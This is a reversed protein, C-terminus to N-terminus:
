RLVVFADLDAEAKTSTSANRIQITHTGVGSWTFLFVMQRPSASSANLNVKSNLAGDIYVSVSGEKPGKPAIWGVASGTFSMTASANKATTSEYGGGFAASSSVPHWEGSYSIANSTEQFADVNYTPGYVWGSWNGATNEGTVRFQYRHGPALQIDASTAPQRAVIAYAGGDTSAQLEYDDVFTISDSGSWSVRVPVTSTGAAAPAITATPATVSPGSSQTMAALVNATTRQIRSDIYGAKDLAWGWQFTGVAFVWARSPAQYISSNTYDSQTPQERLSYPSHSLLDYYRSTPLPYETMYRDGEIGVISSVADGNSFGTGRYVWHSANTVIYNADPGIENTYQIGILTQEARGLDRWRITKLSSTTTPDISAVRYCVIVRDKVGTNSNEFRIQWYIGNAGFFGLSVGADRANQFADYMQKSWYEDHGVTLTARYNLLRSGNEHTDVDTSYSIDYGSRELWHVTNSQWLMYDNQGAGDYSYPRDFSVKSAAVNGSTTVAGYSNYAYLSKGTKNDNPYNNYAEDTAVPAQYLFQAVRSDDRVVFTIYNQYSHSNTLVAVYVGSVWSTPVSLTYATAWACEIKGDRDTPCAPQTTGSRSAVSLMKRGGTGGYWGLRYINITYTQAPYVSIKLAISSGKNVSTASAYGKIQGNNPYDASRSYGSYPIQWGTSGANQNEIVIPNSAAQAAPVLGPTLSAAAFIALALITSWAARESWPRKSVLDGKWRHQAGRTRM